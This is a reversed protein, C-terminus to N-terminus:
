QKFPILFDPHKYFYIELIDLQIFDIYIPTIQM